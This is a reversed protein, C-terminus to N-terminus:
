LELRFMINGKGSRGALVVIIVLKAGPITRRTFAALTIPIDLDKELVNVEEGTEKHAHM